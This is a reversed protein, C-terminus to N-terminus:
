FARIARVKATDAGYNETARGSKFQFSCHMNSNGATSSWYATEAFDGLGKTKLNKYMLELEGASPLFWDNVGGHELEDCYLVANGKINKKKMAEVLYQTNRKGTGVAPSTEASIGTGWERNTETQVPAAELYRWGGSARGKDYFVIGGAPGRDGIRYDGGTRVAPPSGPPPQRQSLLFAIQDDARVMVSASAEIVATSVNVAQVGLRYNGGTGTFSGTIIFRVGLMKGIAQISKDSIGGSLQLEQEKKIADVNKRDIMLLTKKNVLYETLDEEIHNSLPGSDSDIKFVTAAANRPLGAEIASGAQRIAEPLALTQAFVGGIGWFLMVAGRLAMCLPIKKM